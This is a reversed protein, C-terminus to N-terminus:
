DPTAARVMRGYREVEVTQDNAPSAIAIPAGYTPLELTVVVDNSEDRDVRQSFEFRAKRLLGEDDVWFEAPRVDTPQNLLLRLMLRQAELKTDDPDLETFVRDISINAEYKTASVGAVDERGQPKISGALAGLALDVFFTPNITNAAAIAAAPGELDSAAPRPEDDPLATFDLKAWTRKETPRLNLRRVFITERSFITSAAVEGAAPAPAAGDAAAPPNLKLQAANKAFDFEVDFALKGAMLGGAGLPAGLPSGAAGPQTGGEGVGGGVGGSAADAAPRPNDPDPTIEFTLTGTGTKAAIAKARAGHIRDAYGQKDGIGCAASAVAVAIAIAIAAMPRRIM